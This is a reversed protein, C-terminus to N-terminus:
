NIVKNKMAEFLEENDIELEKIYKNLNTKTNACIFNVEDNQKISIMYKDFNNFSYKMFVDGVITSNLIDLVDNKYQEIFFKVNLDDFFSNYGILHPINNKDIIIDFGLFGMYESDEISLTDLTPTIITDTIQKKMEEDILYPKTYAINNQYKASIGIIKFSYGTSLTWVNINKGEVYDEVIIKENGWDFFDNTIKLADRYTEIFKVCESKNHKDPKIAYPYNNEKIYDIASVAKQAVLFKPSKIKLRYMFKKAWIKSTSIKIAKSSPSFVSINKDTIIEDLHNEIYKEDEILVFNIENADIFDLIDDNDKFDVSGDLGTSTIFVINSKDNTFLHYFEKASFSNGLILIRM